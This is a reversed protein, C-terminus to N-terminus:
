LPLPFEGRYWRAAKQLRDPTGTLFEFRPHYDQKYNALQAVSDRKPDVSIFVPTVVPGVEVKKDLRDVAAGMKVLESPCIDPCFTFGFYLM